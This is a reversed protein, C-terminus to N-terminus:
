LQSGAIWLADLAAEDLGLLAGITPVLEHNREYITAYEWEIAALSRSPEPLQNIASDIDELSLGQLIIQLRLQRASIPLIVNTNLVVEKTFSEITATINHASRYQEAEAETAFEITTNDITLKYVLM